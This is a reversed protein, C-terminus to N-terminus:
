STVPLAKLVARSRISTGSHAGVGLRFSGFSGVIVQPFPDVDRPGPALGLVVGLKSLLVLEEDAFPQIPDHVGARAVDIRKRLDDDPTEPAKPQPDASM